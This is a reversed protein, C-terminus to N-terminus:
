LHHSAPKASHEPPGAKVDPFVQHVPPSSKVAPSGSVMIPVTKIKRGQEDEHLHDADYEEPLLYRRVFHREVYGHEDPKEEHKGEIVVAKDHTRVSLEAPAFQHVDLSVRFGGPGECVTALHQMPPTSHPLLPAAAVANPWLLARM